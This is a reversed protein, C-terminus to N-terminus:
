AASREGRQSFWKNANPHHLLLVTAIHFAVILADRAAGISFNMTKPGYQESLQVLLSIVALATVVYRSWAHGRLLFFILILQAPMVLSWGPHYAVFYSSLGSIPVLAFLTQLPVARLAASMAWFVVALVVVGPLGTRHTNRTRHSSM